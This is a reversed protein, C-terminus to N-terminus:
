GAAELGIQLSRSPTPWSAKTAEKVGELSSYTLSEGVTGHYEGIESVGVNISTAVFEKAEEACLLPGTIVM